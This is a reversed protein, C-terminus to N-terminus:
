SVIRVSSLGGDVHLVQGTVFRAADSLLFAVLEAFETPDGVRKLPHRGAAAERRKEDALLAGALPTDTLSPAVVNVRIRPALEAALSRALGEVAGKAAAISAHFPMGQAVAVTSFLVVSASESKKLAPLAYQVARVAGLCNIEFDEMFEAPAIRHFPKLRITGPCYVLGDLVEPLTWAPADTERADFAVFADSEPRRTTATVRVGDARLRLTTASGIGTRGGVVLVHKSM